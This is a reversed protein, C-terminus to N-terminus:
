APVKFQCRPRSSRDCAETVPVGVVDRLMTQVAHCVEERQGVAVSLPCGCGKIVYGRGEPDREVTTVGGLANLLNSALETRAAVGAPKTDPSGALRHGVDRMLTKLEATSLRDGLAGLLSSLFPLYANSFSPEAEETITYETAPKGVSGDRRTGKAEVLGDRELTGIHLRVANDTLRLERALEDVTRPSRRLLDVIQGRTSEFFRSDGARATM